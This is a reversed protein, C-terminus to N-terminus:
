DPRSMGCYRCAYCNEVCCGGGCHDSYGDWSVGGGCQQEFHHTCVKETVSEIFSAWDRESGLSPAGQILNQCLTGPSKDVDLIYLRKGSKRIADAERLLAAQAGDRAFSALVKAKYNETFLVAAYKSSSLASAWADFWKSGQKEMIGSTKLTPDAKSADSVAQM